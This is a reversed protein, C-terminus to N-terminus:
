FFNCLVIIQMTLQRMFDWKNIICCFTHVRYKEGHVSLWRNFLKHVVWSSWCIRLASLFWDLVNGPPDIQCFVSACYLNTFLEPWSLCPSLPCYRETSSFIILASNLSYHRDFYRCYWWAHTGSDPIWSAQDLLKMGWFISLISHPARMYIHHPRDNFM